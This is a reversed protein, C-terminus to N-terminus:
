MSEDMGDFWGGSAQFAAFADDMEKDFAKQEAEAKALAAKKRQGGWIWFGIAVVLGIILAIGNISDVGKEGVVKATIALIAAYLGFGTLCGMCGKGSMSQAKELNAQIEGKRAARGADGITELTFSTACGNGTWFEVPTGQYRAFVHACTLLIRKVTKHIGPNGVNINRVRWGRLQEEVGAKVAAHIEAKGYREFAASPTLDERYPQLDAPSEAAEIDLLDGIDVNLGGWLSNMGKAIAQSACSLINGSGNVSGNRPQWEIRKEEKTEIRSSDFMGSQTKTIIKEAGVECTYNSQWECEFLFAASCCKEVREIKLNRFVDPLIGEDGFKGSNLLLGGILDNVERNTMRYEMMGSIDGKAAIAANVSRTTAVVAETGCVTCKATTGGHMLQM